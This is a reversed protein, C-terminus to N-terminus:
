TPGEAQLPHGEGEARRPSSSPTGPRPSPVKWVAQPRVRCPVTLTVPDRSPVPGWPSLWQLATCGPRRRRGSSSPTRSFSTFGTARLPEPSVTPAGGAEGKGELLQFPLIQAAAVPTGPVLCSQPERQKKDMSSAGDRAGRGPPISKSPDPWLFSVERQLLMCPQIAGPQIQM